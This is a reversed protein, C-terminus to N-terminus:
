ISLNMTVSTYPHCGSMSPKRRSFPCFYRMKGLSPRRSECYDAMFFSVDMVDVITLTVKRKQINRKNM